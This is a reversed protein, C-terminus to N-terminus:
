FLPQMLIPCTFPYVFPPFGSAFTQSITHKDKRSIKNIYCLTNQSTIQVHVQMYRALLWLSKIM